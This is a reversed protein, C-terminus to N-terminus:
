QRGWSRNSNDMDATIYWKGDSMMHLTLIFKGADAGSKDNNYGGIIYAVSDAQAFSLARLHLEGGSNRYAKAIAKRGQVPPYGPRLIFGDPTFLTALADADRSRWGEEYERLIRDFELPLQVSTPSIPSVKEPAGNEQALINCTLTILLGTFSISKYM